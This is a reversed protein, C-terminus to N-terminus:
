IRRYNGPDRRANRYHTIALGPGMPPGSTKAEFEKKVEEILRFDM